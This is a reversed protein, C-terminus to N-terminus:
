AAGGQSADLVGDERWTGEFAVEAPGTLTVDFGAAEEVCTVVLDDGGATRVRVPSAHGEAMAWLATAIAGSGCALTEAEVGREYTRLAVAGDERPSVFDVNAGERGFRPHARLARGWASIPATELADEPSVFHPVGARVFRGEFGRGCAEVRLREGPPEVRGFRVRILAGVREAEQIGVATEIRVRGDRGLGRDLAFRALCRTGNGCYDAAGGDANFYRMAADAGADTPTELLLVGDAGV